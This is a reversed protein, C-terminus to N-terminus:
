LYQTSALTDETTWVHPNSVYGGHNFWRIFNNQCLFILIQYLILIFVFISSNECSIM